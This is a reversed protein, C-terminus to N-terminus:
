HGPLYPVGWGLGVALLVDLLMNLGNLLLQVRLLKGSHGLGIRGIDLYDTVHGLSIM